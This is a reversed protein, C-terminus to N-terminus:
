HVPPDPLCAAGGPWPGGRGQQLHHHWFPRRNLSAPPEPNLTLHTHTHTPATQSSHLAISHTCTTCTDIVAAAPPQLPSPSATTVCQLHSLAAARICLCARPTQHTHRHNTSQCLQQPAAMAGAIHESLAALPGKGTVQAAMTFGVFALMALRGNKIEKVKLEEIPGPVFPAFGPYGVEHPQLKNQPFLPDADVSGPNRYDQWRKLEVFHMAFFEFALLGVINFPLDIKTPADYWFIDPKVIEQAHPLPPPPM